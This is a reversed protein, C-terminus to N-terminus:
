KNAVLLRTKIKIKMLISLKMQIILHNKLKKNRITKNRIKWLVVHHHIDHYLINIHYKILHPMINKVQILRNQNHINIKILENIM